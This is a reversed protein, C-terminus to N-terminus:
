GHTNGKALAKLADGDLCRGHWEHLPRAGISDYFKIAPDNWNLVRWDISGCNEDLAKVALHRLLALGIGSGRHAPDVFLDELFLCTHGAFTSVTYYYLAIGAAYGDGTEALIAHARVPDGFLLKRYDAETAVFKEMLREYHALGRVLRMVQPIDDPTAPRLNM